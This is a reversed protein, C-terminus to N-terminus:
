FNLLFIYEKQADHQTRRGQGSSAVTIARTYKSYLAVIYLVKSFRQRWDGKGWRRARWALARLWRAPPARVTTRELLIATVDATVTLEVRRGDGSLMATADPTAALRWAL